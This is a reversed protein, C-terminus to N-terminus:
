SIKKIEDRLAIAKEFDMNEAAAVMEEKLQAIKQARQEETLPADNKKKKGSKSAAAIALQINSISKVVERKVTVPTISHEENHAIQLARRRETEEIADHMSGTIKDAYMIVKSETNRAARGITQILSRKDRLFSEIDADMIAVLAVEPLDLGERLLNVGM